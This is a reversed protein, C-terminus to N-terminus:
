RLACLLCTSQLMLHGVSKVSGSGHMVRDYGISITRVEDCAHHWTTRPVLLLLMCIMEALPPSTDDANLLSTDTDTQEAAMCHPSGDPTQGLSSGQEPPGVQSCCSAQMASDTQYQVQCSETHACDLEQQSIRQQHNDDAVEADSQCLGDTVHADRGVTSSSPAAVSAVALSTARDSAAACAPHTGRDDSAPIAECSVNSSSASDCEAWGQRLTHGATPAKQMIADQSQQCSLPQETASQQQAQHLCYCVVQFLDTSQLESLFLDTAAPSICAAEVAAPSTRAAEAVAPIVSVVKTAGRFAPAAETVAEAAAPNIVAAETAAPSSGAAQTASEMVPKITPPSTCATDASICCSAFSRSRVALLQLVSDKPLAMVVPLLAKAAAAHELNEMKLLQPITKLANATQALTEASHASQPQSSTLPPQQLLSPLKTDMFTKIDQWARHVVICTAAISHASM